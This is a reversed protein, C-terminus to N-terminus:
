LQEMGVRRGADFQTADTNGVYAAKRQLSQRFTSNRTLCSEDTASRDTHSTGDRLTHGCTRLTAFAHWLRCAHMCAHM